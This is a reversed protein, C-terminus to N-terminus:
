KAAMFKQVLSVLSFVQCFVISLALDQRLAEIKYIASYFAIYHLIYLHHLGVRRGQCGAPVSTTLVSKLTSSDGASELGNLSVTCGRYPKWKHIYHHM